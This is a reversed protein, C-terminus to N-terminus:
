HLLVADSRRTSGGDTPALRGGSLVLVRDAWLVTRPRHTICLVTTAALTAAVAELVRRETVADLASTSEDLILVRPRQLLARALAVRQREGGSLRCGRPGLPENWGGSLREVVPRLQAAAAAARLEEDSADRNGYRLNEALSVDFLVPEQPVYAVAERLSRLTLRRIDVGDILVAGHGTDYLRAVLRAITSKGCGSAGTLAVKDGPAICVDIQDLVRAGEDYAFTVRQLEVSAPGTRPLEIAAPHEVIADSAQMVERVRTVSARVRELRAYLDVLGYLPIFLQLTYGYFAVLGGTTLTGALVQHGGVGLVGAMGCVIVLYLLSGFVMEARRRAIEARIAAAAFRAFRRVTGAERGLLQVQVAAALHEQLFSTVAASRAQAVDAHYQLVRRYRVRLVAFAPALPLILVALRPNLVLMAALVAVGLTVLRVLNPLIEAGLTGIQTVDQELRHLSDGVTHRDHYSPALQYLRRLMDRRLEFMVRHVARSGLMVGAYDLVRRAVYNAVLAGAVIPVWGARRRALVDDILWKMILPDLLALLSAATVYAQSAALAGRSPRLRAALWRLHPDIHFLM